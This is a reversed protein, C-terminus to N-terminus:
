QASSPGTPMSSPVMGRAALIAAMQARGRVQLKAYVRSLAQKVTERGVGLELAVEVNNRGAAVRQAIQLERRTLSGAEGLDARTTGCHEIRALTAAIFGGLAAARARDDGDFAREGAGRTLIFVGSLCGRSGYVPAMMVHWAGIRRGFNAHVPDLRQQEPTFVQRVDVPMAVELVRRVMADQPRWIREYEDLDADRLGLGTRAASGPSGFITAAGVRAAFSTRLADMLVGSLETATKCRALGDLAPRLTSLSMKVRGTDYPPGREAEGFDYVM